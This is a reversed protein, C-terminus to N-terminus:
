RQPKLAFSFGHVRPESFQPAEDTGRKEFTAVYDQMFRTQEHDEGYQERCREYIQRALRLNADEVAAIPDQMCYQADFGGFTENSRGAVLLVSAIATWV